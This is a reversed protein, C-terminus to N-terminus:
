HYEGRIARKIDYQIDTKAEQIAKRIANHMINSPKIGPHRWRQNRWVRGQHPINVYGPTGVVGKAASRFHPGDGQKCGLPLGARGEVWKMLFPKTGSEQYLLYRVSTQIGVMGTKSKPVLSRASKWGKGTMDQRAIQVAKDSIKRALDEPLPVHAM